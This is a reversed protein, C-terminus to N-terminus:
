TSDKTRQASAGPSRRNLRKARRSSLESWADWAGGTDDDRYFDCDWDRSIDYARSLAWKEFAKRTPTMRVKAM